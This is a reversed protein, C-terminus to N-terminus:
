TIQLRCRSLKHAHGSRVAMCALFKNEFEVQRACIRRRQGCHSGRDVGIELCNEKELRCDKSETLKMDSRLRCEKGKMGRATKSM